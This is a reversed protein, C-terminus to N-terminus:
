LLITTSGIDDIYVMMVEGDTTILTEQAKAFVTAMFTAVAFLIFKKM